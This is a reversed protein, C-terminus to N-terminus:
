LHNFWAESYFCFYIINRAKM